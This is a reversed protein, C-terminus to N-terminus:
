ETEKRILIQKLCKESLSNKQAHMHSILSMSLTRHGRGQVHPCNNRQIKAM